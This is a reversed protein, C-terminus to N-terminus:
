PAEKYRAQVVNFISIAQSKVVVELLVLALGLLLPSPFEELILLLEM